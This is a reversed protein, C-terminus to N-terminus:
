CSFSVNSHLSPLCLFPQSLKHLLFHYLLFLQQFFPSCFALIVLRNRCFSDTKRWPSVTSDLSSTSAKLLQRERRLLRGFIEIDKYLRFVKYQLHVQTLSAFLLLLNEAYLAQSDHTYVCAGQCPRTSEGVSFRDQDQYRIIKGM